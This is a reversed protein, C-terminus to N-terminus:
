VKAFAQMLQSWNMGNPAKNMARILADQSVVVNVAGNNAASMYKAIAAYTITGTMAWTAIKIGESSSAVGVFFHGNEPDPDGAVDWVFGSGSPVPNIWADPLECGFCLNEFWWLAARLEVENTPDVALSGAIKHSGDPLLGNAQWDAFATQEDTGNDTSPDGPVYGAEASYIAQMQADTFIFPTGAANGTLVGVVHGQGAEVCDGLADNLYMRGLSAQARQSYDIDPTGPFPALFDRFRLKPAVTPRNRGFRLDPRPLTKGPM